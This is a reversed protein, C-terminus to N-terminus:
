RKFCKKRCWWWFIRWSWRCSKWWRGGAGGGGIGAAPYGGGGGGASTSNDTGGAGGDGGYAYVIAKDFIGIKGANEGNEGDFGSNTNNLPNDGVKVGVQGLITTNASGGNGGNGGIGAGAGDGGGGGVNGSVCEGGNGANGGVAIITGNGYLNFEANEPVHIGAYGGPGGEARKGLEGSVEGSEGFGSNVNLIVSNAVYLDLIGGPEIDIASRAMGTNTLTMNKFINIKAHTNSKVQISLEGEIEDVFMVSADNDITFKGKGEVESENNFAEKTVITTGASVNGGSSLNIEGFSSKYIGNGDVSLLISCNDKMVGYDIYGTYNNNEDFQPIALAESVDTTQGSASLVTDIIEKNILSKLISNIQVPNSLITDINYSALELDIAELIEAKKHTETAKSARSLIGDEGVIASISVGALILM